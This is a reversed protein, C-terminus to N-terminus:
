EGGISFGVAIILLVFWIWGIIIGEKSYCLWDILKELMDIMPDDVRKSIWCIGSENM